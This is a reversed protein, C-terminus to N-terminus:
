GPLSLLSFSPSFPSLPLSINPPLPPSLPVLSPHYSIFNPLPLTPSLNPLPPYPPILSSPYSISCPFPIFFFWPPLALSLIPPFPLFSSPSLPSPLLYVMFLPLPLSISHLSLSVPSILAFNMLHASSQCPRITVRDPCAMYTILTKFNYHDRPCWICWMLSTNHLPSCTLIRHHFVAIIQLATIFLIHHYITIISTLYSVYLHNSIHHFVTIVWFTIFLIIILLSPWFITIFM